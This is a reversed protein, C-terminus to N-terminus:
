PIHKLVIKKFNEVTENISFGTDSLEFDITHLAERKNSQANDETFELYMTYKGKKVRKGNRDTLDWELSRRDHDNVTAGSIGDPSLSGLKDKWTILHKERKGAYADLTKIFTDDEALIFAAWINEIAYHGGYSEPTFKVTVVGTANPDFSSSSVLSSSSPRKDLSSSEIESSSSISSSLTEFSSVSVVSSSEYMNGHSTVSEDSSEVAVNDASFRRETSSEAASVEESSMQVIESSYLGSQNKSPITNETNCGFQLLSFLPLFFLLKKVM